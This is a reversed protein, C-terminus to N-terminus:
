SHGVVVSGEWRERCSARGIQELFADVDARFQRKDVPTILQAIFGHLALQAAVGTRADVMRKLLAEHCCADEMARGVSQLVLPILDSSCVDPSWDCDFRTHRRRSSFFFSRSARIALVDGGM